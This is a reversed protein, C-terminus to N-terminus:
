IDIKEISSFLFVIQRQKPPDLPHLAYRSDVGLAYTPFRLGFAAAVFSNPM